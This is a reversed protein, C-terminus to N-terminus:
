LLPLFGAVKTGSSTELSTGLAVGLRGEEDVRGVIGLVRAASSGLIL